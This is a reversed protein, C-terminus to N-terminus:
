KRDETSGVFVIWEGDPSWNPHRNHGKQGPVIRPRADGEADVIRIRLADSFVLQKDDPSFSIFGGMEGKARSRLQTDQGSPDLVFLERRVGATPRTVVALLSGDHSWAFGEFIKEHPQAFLAKEDGSLLDIVRLLGGDAVALLSGDHSWRPSKGTGIQTRGSGDLNQVYIPPASSPKFLLQKDDPSWDAM